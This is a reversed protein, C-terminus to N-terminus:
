SLGVFDELFPMAVDTDNRFAFTVAHCQGGTAAAGVAVVTDTDGLFVPAGNDGRCTGGQGTAAPNIQLVIVDPGIGAIAVEAQWRAQDHSHTCRGAGSCDVAEGYGVVTLQDAPDISDLLQSTPLEAPEINVSEDLVAVGYMNRFSAWHADPHVFSESVAHFTSTELDLADDFTVDVQGGGELVSEVDGICFAHTLFAAPGILVGTCLRFPEGGADRMVLAGVYPHASGDPTGGSIATANPVATLLLVAALATVLTRTM